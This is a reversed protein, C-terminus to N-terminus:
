QHNQRKRKERNTIARPLQRSVFYPDGDSNKVNKLNKTYSFIKDRLQQNCRVIMARPKSGHKGKACHAVEVDKDEVPMNMKDRFLSLVKAKCDSEDETDGTIGTIIVNNAMSRVTLDTVKKELIVLWNEKVQLLGKLLSVEDKLHINSEELSDVRTQLDTINNEADVLRPSLGVQEDTLKTNLSEFKLHFNTYIKNIASMLLDLKENMDVQQFDTINIVPIEKIESIEELNESDEQVSQLGQTESSDM